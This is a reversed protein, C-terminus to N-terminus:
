ATERTAPTDQQSLLVELDGMISEQRYSHSSSDQM